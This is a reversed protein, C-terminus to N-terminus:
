GKAAWDKERMVEAVRIAYRSFVERQGVAIAKRHDPHKMWADLAAQDRWYSVTLLAEEDAMHRYSEKSVFGEIDRVSELLPELMERNRAEMGPKVAFEIICAIM